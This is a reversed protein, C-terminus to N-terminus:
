YAAGLRKLNGREIPNTRKGAAPRDPESIGFMLLAVALFGPIAAVWFVARFDNAWLLMLGVALLPGV